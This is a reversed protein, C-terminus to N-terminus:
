PTPHGRGADDLADLLARVTREVIQVTEADRGRLLDAVAAQPPRETGFLVEDASVGLVECLMRFRDLRVGTNGSELDALFPVSLGVEEALRERTWGRQERAARLRRGMDEKQPDRKRVLAM